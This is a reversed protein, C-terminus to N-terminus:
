EFQSGVSVSICKALTSKVFKDINTITTEIGDIAGNVKSAKLFPMEISATIQCSNVVSKEKAVKAPLADLFCKSKM